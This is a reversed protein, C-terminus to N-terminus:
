PRGESERTNRAVADMIGSLFARDSADLLASRKLEGLATLGTDSHSPSPDLALDVAWQLRRFMEASRIQREGSTGAVRAARLSVVTLAASLAIGLFSWV